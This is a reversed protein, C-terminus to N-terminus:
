KPLPLEVTFKTGKGVMSTVRIKGGNKEVLTHTVALGLGTGGPKDTFFPDFLHPIKDPPIGCGTDEVSVEM